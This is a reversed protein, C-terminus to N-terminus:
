VLSLFNIHLFVIFLAVFPFLTLTTVMEVLQIVTCRAQKGVKVVTQTYLLGELFNSFYCLNKSSKSHLKFEVAFCACFM